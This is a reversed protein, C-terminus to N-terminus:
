SIWATDRYYERTCTIGERKLVKRWFNLTRPSVRTAMAATKLFSAKGMTDQLVRIDELSGYDLVRELVWVNHRDLDAETLSHDWFLRSLQRAVDSRSM